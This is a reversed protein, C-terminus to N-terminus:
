LSSDSHPHPLVKARVRWDNKLMWRPSAETFDSEGRWAHRAFMSFRDLASNAQPNELRWRVCAPETRDRASLCDYYYVSAFAVCHREQEEAALRALAGRLPQGVLSADLLGGHLGSPALFEDLDLFLVMSRHTAACVEISGLALNMALKQSYMHVKIEAAHAVRVISMREDSLLTPHLASSGTTSLTGPVQISFRPAHEFVLLQDAGLLRYWAAYELSSQRMWITADGHTTTTRPTYAYPCVVVLHPTRQCAAQALPFGPHRIQVNM